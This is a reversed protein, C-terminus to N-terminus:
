ASPYPFEKDMFEQFSRDEYTEFCGHQDYRGISGPNRWAEKDAPFWVNYYHDYKTYTSVSILKAFKDVHIGGGLTAENWDGNNFKWAKIAVGGDHSECVVLQGDVEDLGRPLEAPIAYFKSETDLLAARISFPLEIMTGSKIDFAQKNSWVKAFGM